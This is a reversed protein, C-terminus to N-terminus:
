YIVTMLSSVIASVPTQIQRASTHHNQGLFPSVSCRRKGTGEMESAQRVATGEWGRQWGGMGKATSFIFVSRWDPVSSQAGGRWGM